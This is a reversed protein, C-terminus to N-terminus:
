GVASRGFTLHAISYIFNEACQTSNLELLEPLERLCAVDAIGSVQRDNALCRQLWCDVLQFFFGLRDAYHGFTADALHHLLLFLRDPQIGSRGTALFPPNDFFGGLFIAARRQGLSADVLVEGV